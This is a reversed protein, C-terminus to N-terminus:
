PASRKKYFESAQKSHEEERKRSEYGGTVQEKMGFYKQLNGDEAGTVPKDKYFEKVRDEIQSASPIGTSTIAQQSRSLYEGFASRQPETGIAYEPKQFAASMPEPKIAPAEEAAVEELSKPRQRAEELSPSQVQAQIFHHTAVLQKGEITELTSLETAKAEPIPIRKREEDELEKESESILQEAEEIEKKRAEELDKLRKIREQPTLKKLDQVTVPAKDREDAEDSQAM